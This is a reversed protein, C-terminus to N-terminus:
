DDTTNYPDKGRQDSSPECGSEDISLEADLPSLMDFTSDLDDDTPADAELNWVPNGKCDFTVRDDPTPPVESPSPHSDLAADPADPQKGRIIDLFYAKFGDKRKSDKDQNASM